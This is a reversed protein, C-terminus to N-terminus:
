KRGPQKKWPKPWGPFVFVPATLSCTIQMPICRTSSAYYPALNEQWFPQTNREPLRVNRSIRRFWFPASPSHKASPKGRQKPKRAILVPCPANRVVREATSGLLLHKLGSYGRTSLVILEAGIERAVRVIEEYPRGGRIHCNDPCFTPVHKRHIGTLEENLREIAQASEFLLHGAGPASAEDPPYAHVLHIAARFQKALWVAYDLAEVSAPSFDLAVLIREIKFESPNTPVTADENDHEVLDFSPRSHPSKKPVSQRSSAM